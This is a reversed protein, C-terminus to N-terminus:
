CKTNFRIVIELDYSLFYINHSLIYKYVVVIKIIGLYYMKSKVFEIFKIIM